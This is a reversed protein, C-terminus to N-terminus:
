VRLSLVTRLTIIILDETTMKATLLDLTDYLSSTAPNEEKQYVLPSSM